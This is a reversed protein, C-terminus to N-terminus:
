NTAVAELGYARLLRQKATDRGLKETLQNWDDHCAKMEQTASDPSDIIKRLAQELRNKYPEFEAFRLERIANRDELGRVLQEEYARIEPRNSATKWQEPLVQIRRDRQSLVIRQENEDLWKLFRISASSQRSGRAICAVLGRGTDLWQKPSTVILGKDEAVEARTSSVSPPRGSAARVRHAAVEEWASSPNMSALWPTAHYKEGFATSFDILWREDLRSRGDNLYFLFGDELVEPSGAAAEVLFRDVLGDDTTMSDPTTPKVDTRSTIMASLPVGLPVGWIRKAYDAAKRWTPPWAAGVVQSDAASGASDHSELMTKPLPVLGDREAWTALWRSEFVVVDAAPLKSAALDSETIPTVEIPQESISQWQRATAECLSEDGQLRVRLPPRAAEHAAGASVDKVPKPAPCGTLLVGIAAVLWASKTM